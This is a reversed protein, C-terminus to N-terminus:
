WYLMCRFFPIIKPLCLKDSLSDWKVDSVEYWQISSCSSFFGSGPNGRFYGLGMESAQITLHFKTAQKM